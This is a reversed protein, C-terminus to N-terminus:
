AGELKEVHCHCTLSVLEQGWVWDECNSRMELITVLIGFSQCLKHKNDYQSYSGKCRSTKCRTKFLYNPFRDARYDCIYDWRCPATSSSLGVKVDIEQLVKACVIKNAAEMGAPSFRSHDSINAVIAKDGATVTLNKRKDDIMMAKQAYHLINGNFLTNYYKLQRRNPLCRPPLNGAAITPTIPTTPSTRIVVAPLNYSGAADLLLTQMSVMVFLLIQQESMASLQM